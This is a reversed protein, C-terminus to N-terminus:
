PLKMASYKQKVVEDGYKDLLRKFDPHRVLAAFDPDVLLQGFYVTGPVTLAEELTELAKDLDGLTTYVDLPVSFADAGLIADKTLPRSELAKETAETAAVRNGLRSNLLAVRSLYWFSTSDYGPLRGVNYSMFELAAKSDRRMLSDLGMYRYIQARAALFTASDFPPITLYRLAADYNGEIEEMLCGLGMWIASDVKGASMNMMERVKDPDGQWRWYMDALQNYAESFDPRLAIVERFLSEAEPYRRMYDCDMALDYKHVETKPDLEIVRKMRHYADEWRGMRRLVHHTANLYSANNEKNVKAFASDYYELAHGYDKLCRYNYEALAYNGIWVNDSLRRAKEATIMALNRISDSREFGFFYLRSYIQSIQNYALAFGSDLAVAKQTLELGLRLAKEGYGGYRWTERTGRLYFDYAQESDTWPEWVQKREGPSLFIGMQNAVNEAIESQVSFVETMVTDYTKSWLNVDDKVKILQTVLRLRRRGDSGEQWRITGDLVYDVGLEKGIEQISKKMAKLRSASARSTVALGGINTLRSMIEDTMGSAFYEQDPSGENDLPLVVLKMPGTSKHWKNYFLRASFAGGVFIAVGLSVLLTVALPSRKKRPSVTLSKLDSLLDDIHQYRHGKDKALTKSVIRQLEDPIGSKYRVLPEPENYAISYTIAPEHEGRFPLHGTILEYLVVGLSFIDSRRDLAEGRTQEPSMYSVTGMTSGTQTIKEAGRITALGFDLIIARGDNDVIINAPKIDRHVIEAQHAKALGECIQIALDVAKKLPLNASGIVDKLTKGEIHEMAFYPRGEFESVEHITIINPHRLRAAAQAERKFRARCDADQCLHRPLFKLAVKRDLECDEALYVEGMGGAGIQEIIRYHGIIADKAHCFDSRTHDNPDDSSSMM